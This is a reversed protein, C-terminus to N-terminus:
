LTLMLVDQGSPREASGPYFGAAEKVIRLGAEQIMEEFVPRAFAIAASPRNMVRWRVRDGGFPFAPVGSGEFLFATVVARGSPAVIRAIERLYCAAELLSLHTFLSKALVLDVSADDVPLRFDSIPVRGSGYASSIPALAFRFRPDGVFARRCWAISAAHVDIGLYFAGSGLAARFIVAMAGPGCGLDVIRGNAPLARWGDLLEM